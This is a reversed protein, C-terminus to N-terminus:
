YIPLSEILPHHSEQQAIKRRSGKLPSGRASQSRKKKEKEEKKKKPQRKKM